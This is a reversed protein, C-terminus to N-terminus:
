SLSRSLCWVFKWRKEVCTLGGNGEKLSKKIVGFCIAHNMLCCSVILKNTMATLSCNRLSLSNSCHIIVVRCFNAPSRSAFISM